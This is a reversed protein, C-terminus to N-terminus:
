ATNTQYFQATMLTESSKSRPQQPFKDPASSCFHVLQILIIQKPSMRDIIHETM